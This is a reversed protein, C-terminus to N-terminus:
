PAGKDALAAIFAGLAQLQADNLSYAPMVSAYGKVTQAAPSVISERVYADDVQVERGDMLTETAGYLGKWSPGVGPSGDLSHCALCGLTEALQQGDSVRQEQAADTAEPGLSRILAVLAELDADALAYPVMVAAYGQVMRAGPQLISEKLYDEDVRVQSGDALTELSGYLGLWGPGLSKSGDLSHCAVCGHQQALARGREVEPDLGSRQASAEQTQAFTPQQGLWQEFAEPAEVIMRGRMNYHGLGCFEACLIEYSGTVMPTFWFYSVLGPVMDMKSRIQPIYFNHLVDNSRQLVKVPLGVPLRVENGRVIVDDQGSADEPNLGLPNAASIWEVSSTGLRGDAGPLRFAWQWQQGVVELEYANDPVRVFDNYVVLGPALLGAIAVTTVGILWWELPKNEPEYQARLGKRHRFRILALAMFLTIAVFFVGTILLTLFLTDDISGWNSAAETARWPNFLHFLVSAIVIFIFVIALAM